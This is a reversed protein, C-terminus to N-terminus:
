MDSCVFIHRTLSRHVRDRHAELVSFGAGEIPDSIPRDAVVVMRREEELVRRMEVLSEELLRDRSSARIVASRGYPTDSVVSQISGDALPLRLADGVLLACDLGALNARSGRVLKEQVDLGVGRMGALCAEVLIGGTGAFPDLLREGERAQSLNVLARAMRPMLVGPYFFPKKHPRRGEYSSRDISAVVRGLVVRDGIVLGRLEMEPCTLDAKYGRGHLARGVEKEVDQSSLDGEKIKRARIRYRLAPLDVDGMAASVASPMAPSIAILEMVRHTLALRRGLDPLDPRDIEMILCQDLWDVEKYGQSHIELLALVESRPLTPHEGSLEFAYLHRM